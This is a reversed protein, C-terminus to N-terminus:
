KPLVERWKDPRCPMFRPSLLGLSRVSGNAAERPEPRVNRSKSFTVGTKRPEGPSGLPVILPSGRSRPGAQSAFRPLRCNDRRITRDFPHM